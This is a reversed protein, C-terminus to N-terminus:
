KTKSTVTEVKGTGGCEHCEDGQADCHEGCDSCIGYDNLPMGCCSEQVEGTGGCFECEDEPTEKPIM